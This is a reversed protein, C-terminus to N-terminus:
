IEPQVSTPEGGAPITPFTPRQFTIGERARIAAGAEYCAKDVSTIHGAIRALNIKFNANTSSQSFVVDHLEPVPSKFTPRGAPRNNTRRSGRGAAGNGRGSGPRGQQQPPQGSGTGGGSSADDPTPM